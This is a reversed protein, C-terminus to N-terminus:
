CHQGSRTDQLRKQGRTKALLSLGQLTATMITLLSHV